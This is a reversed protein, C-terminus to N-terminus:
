ARAGLYRAVVVLADDTPKAHRRLIDGAMEEATAPTDLADAFSPDIGDTAFVLADGPELELTRARLPRVRFGAAGGLIILEEQSSQGNRRRVLRGEVNGVGVWTMTDDRVSFRAVSLSVGRTAKLADHCREVLAVPPEHAHSELVETARATARAAAPGHGLGDVAAVLAGDPLLAVLADDGSETEGALPRAAVSWELFEDGM